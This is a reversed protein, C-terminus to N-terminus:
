RRRLSRLRFLVLLGLLGNLALLGLQYVVTQVPAGTVLELVLRLLGLGGGFVILVALSRWVLLQRRRELSQPHEGNGRHEYMSANHAGRHAPEVGTSGAAPEPPGPARDVPTKEHSAFADFLVLGWARPV